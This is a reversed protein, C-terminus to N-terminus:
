QFPVAEEPKEQSLMTGYNSYAWALDPRPDPPLTQFGKAFAERAADLDPKRRLLEGLYLHAEADEPNKKLFATVLDLARPVRNMSDNKRYIEILRFRTPRDNEQLAVIQEL